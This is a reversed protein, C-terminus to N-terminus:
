WKVAPFPQGPAAFLYGQLLDCGLAVVTDREDATEIGEAVVLIDLERCLSAMSRILKQKTSNTHVGRVIGMDLKVVEPELIALSSLGAYGAGLDDLAIRYGLQRLSEVRTRANPVHELSARETIELVVRDALSSLPSTLAFLHEDLLDQTHLNVFLAGKPGDAMIKAARDRITRGLRELQGLREAASLVAGPHPLAPEGSRLLAEYGFVERKSWSVIPQFAVWLSAIARDFAAALDSLDTMEKEADVVQAARQKLRDMKRLQAARGVAGVLADPEVPKTLYRVAGMEVARIATELSPGATMLVVPADPDHDHVARLLDFGNMGPMSVDSVVVDFNGRKFEQAGTTGDPAMTVEFGANKLLRGYSKLLAPEDDALLVRGKSTTELM